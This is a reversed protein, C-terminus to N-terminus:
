EIKILFLSYDKIAQPISQYVIDFDIEEYGHVLINRMGAAQALRLALDNSFLSIEGARLFATRYSLPTEEGKETLLHFIIDCSVTVLLELLREIAYHDEMFEKFSYSEYKKLDELYRALFEKKRIIVELTM